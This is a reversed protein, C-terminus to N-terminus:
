SLGIVLLWLSCIRIKCQMRLFCVYTTLSPLTCFVPRRGLPAKSCAVWGVLWCRAQHLSLSTSLKLLIPGPFGMYAYGIVPMFEILGPYGSNATISLELLLRKSAVVPFFILFTIFSANRKQRTRGFNYLSSIRSPSHPSTMNPLSLSLGRSNTPDLGMETNHLIFTMRRLDHHNGLRQIQYGITHHNSLIWTWCMRIIQHFLDFFDCFILLLVCLYLVGQYYVNQRVASHSSWDFEM